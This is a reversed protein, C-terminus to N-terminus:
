VAPKAPSGAKPSQKRAVSKAYAWKELRAQLDAVSACENPGGARVYLAQSHEDPLLRVFDHLLTAGGGGICAMVTLSERARTLAVFFANRTTRKLNVDDCGLVIVHDASLGKAGVITAVQVPTVTEIQDFEPTDDDPDAPKTLPARELDRALENPEAITILKQLRETLEVGTGGSEIVEHVRQSIEICTAVVEDGLNVFDSEEAIARRILSVILEQKVGEHALVKRMGYNQSPEKALYYYDRVDWYDGCLEAEAVMYPALLEQLHQLAGDADLFKMKRAPTLVLLYPDKAKHDAIAKAREKLEQKHEEVFREIYAVGASPSTAAAVVVKADSAGRFPLFLKSIAEPPRNALLFAEAARCIHLSCRSCYPLMAKAFEPDQYYDRIISAHGRRLTDYLVQDDDGALLLGPSEATLARILNRDAINFDQFEDIIFLTGAALDPKERLAQTAVLILDPFALANYLRELRLHSQRLALWPAEARPEADYLSDEMASWLFDEPKYDPHLLLADTWVTEEWSPSVIRCFRKLPLESTGRNREVISRATRHLTQVSVRKKDDDSITSDNKLDERLDTVLKRVFTAVGIRDEPHVALWHRLRKIFLTSKGTGPGSIILMRRAQSSAIADANANRVSERQGMNLGSLAARTEALEEASFPEGNDNVLPILKAVAEPFHDAPAPEIHDSM